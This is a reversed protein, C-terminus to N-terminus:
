SEIPFHFKVIASVLISNIKEKMNEDVTQVCHFPTSTSGYKNCLSADLFLFSLHNINQNM